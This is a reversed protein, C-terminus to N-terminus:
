NRTIFGGFSLFVRHRDVKSTKTDFYSYGLKLFASDGVKRFLGFRPIAVWGNPPKRETGGYVGWTYVGNLQAFAGLDAVEFHQLYEAGLGLFYREEPYQYFVNNGRYELIKKRFPRADFTTFLNLNRAKNMIGAELGLAADEMNLDSRLGLYFAPKLGFVEDYRDEVVVEQAAATLFWFGIFTNIILRVAHSTL